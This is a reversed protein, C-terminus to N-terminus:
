ALIAESGFDGEGAAPISLVYIGVIRLCVHRVWACATDANFVTRGGVASCAVRGNEDLEPVVDRGEVLLVIGVARRPDEGVAIRGAESKMGVEHVAPLCTDELLSYLLAAAAITTASTSLGINLLAKTRRVDVPVAVRRELLTTDHCSISSLGRLTDISERTAIRQLFTRGVGDM